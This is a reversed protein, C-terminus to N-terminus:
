FIKDNINLNLEKALAYAEITYKDHFTNFWHTDDNVIVTANLRKATLWFEYKPYGYSIHGDSSKTIKNKRISNRIGNANIELLVNNEKAATIIEIAIRECTDDWDGYAWCFIDPHAVIKFYGSKIGEILQDKYAIAAEKTKIDYVSFYNDSNTDTKPYHFYHEGLILYDLDELFKPYYPIMEPLYEIELASLVTIGEEEKAQKMLSLYINYYEDFSMRRTIIKNLVEDCLPGHDSIGITHYNYKKALKVYDLPVGEAHKCLYIHNHYNSRITQNM